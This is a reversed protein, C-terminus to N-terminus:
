DVSLHYNSRVKATKWKSTKYPQSPLPSLAFKEEDEPTTVTVM